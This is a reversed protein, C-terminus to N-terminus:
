FDVLLIFGFVNEIALSEHLVTCHTATTALLFLICFQFNFQWYHFNGENWQECDLKIDESFSKRAAHRVTPEARRPTTQAEDSSPQLIFLLCLTLFAFCDRV